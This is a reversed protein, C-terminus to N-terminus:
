FPLDGPPANLKLLFDRLAAVINPQCELLQDVADLLLPDAMAKERFREVVLDIRESQRSSLPDTTAPLASETADDILEEDDFESADDEYEEGQYDEPDLRPFEYWASTPERLADSVLQLTKNVAIEDPWGQLYNEVTRQRAVVRSFDQRMRTFRFEQVDDKSRDLRERGLKIGKMHQWWVWLWFPRTSAWDMGALGPVDRFQIATMRLRLAPDIPIETVIRQSATLAKQLDAVAEFEQDTVPHFGIRSTLVWCVAQMMLMNEEDSLWPSGYYPALREMTEPEPIILGREAKSLNSQNSAGAAEAIGTLTLGRIQRSQRLWEGLTEANEM